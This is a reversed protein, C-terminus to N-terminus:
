IIGEKQLQSLEEASLGLLGEYVERNHEGLLPAAREIQLPTETMKCLEGPYRLTGAVPHTIERFFGRAELHPCHALDAADQVIGFLFRRQSAAHYLDWKKWQQFKAILLADLEAGYRFRGEATAFKPDRLEPIDLFEVFEEWKTGVGMQVVIYGDQCPMVNGFAGGQPPVRGQVGGTYTYYPQALVLESSLCEAISVDIHQGTGGIERLYLALATTLAGNLGGAYQAQALGHKIPERDQSGSISMIGSLAYLTLDWAKYDRYPGTQGFNTISTMILAPNIQSLETYSLGLGPLVRPAFNEVLVDATRILDRFLERGRETKLNLTIGKKNWNLYLFPISKEPDPQDGVFPGMRRAAEGEGPKEIKVVEAGYDALLRSCFPGAIYHTLDLVRIGALAGNM